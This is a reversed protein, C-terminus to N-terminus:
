VAMKPKNTFDPHSVYDKIKIDSYELCLLEDLNNIPKTIEMTPLKYPTRTVQEKCIDIQNNYIHVNWGFFVLEGPEYGLIKSFVTNLFAYSM